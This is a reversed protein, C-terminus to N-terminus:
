VGRSNDVAGLIVCGRSLRSIFEESFSNNQEMNSVNSRAAIVVFIQQTHDQLSAFAKDAFGIASVKVRCISCPALGFAFLRVFLRGCPRGWYTKKRAGRSHFNVIFM